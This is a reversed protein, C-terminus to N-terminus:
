TKLQSFNRLLLQLTTIHQGIITSLFSLYNWQAILSTGTVPVLQMNKAIDLNKGFLLPTMISPKSIQQVREEISKRFSIYLKEQDPTEDSPETLHKEIGKSFSIMERMLQCAIPLQSEIERVVEQSKNKFSEKIPIVNNQEYTDRIKRIEEFVDKQTAAFNLNDENPELRKALNIKIGYREPIVNYCDIHYRRIIESLTYSFELWLFDTDVMQGLHNEGKIGLWPQEDKTFPHGSAHALQTDPDFTLDQGFLYIPSCGMLWLSYLGLHAVSSMTLTSTPVNPFFHKMGFHPRLFHILRHPFAEMSNKYVVSTAILFSPDTETDSFFHKTLGTREFCGVFHPTIGQNKLMRFGSDACYIVSKKELGNKKILPLTKNLSPGTSIVIGPIGRFKNKFNQILPAKLLSSINLLSNHFGFYEDMPSITTSTATVTIFSNWIEIAKDFYKDQYGPTKILNASRTSLDVIMRSKFIRSYDYALKELPIGIIWFITKNKLLEVTGPLMLFSCFVEFSPEILVHSKTQNRLIHSPISQGLILGMWCIIPLHTELPTTSGPESTYFNKPLKLIQTFKNQDYKKNDTLFKKLRSYIEYHEKELIQINEIFHNEFTM